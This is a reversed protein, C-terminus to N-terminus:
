TRVTVLGIYARGGTYNSTDLGNGTHM